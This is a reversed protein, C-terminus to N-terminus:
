INKSRDTLQSFKLELGKIEGDLQQLEKQVEPQNKNAIQQEIYSIRGYVPSLSIAYDNIEGSLAALKNSHSQNM